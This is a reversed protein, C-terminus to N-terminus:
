MCGRPRTCWWRSGACRRRLSRVGALDGLARQECQLDGAALVRVGAVPQMAPERALRRMLAAGVLGNAGSVLVQM